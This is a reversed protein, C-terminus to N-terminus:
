FEEDPRHAIEEMQSAINVFDKGTYAMSSGEQERQKNDAIMGQMEAELASVLILRKVGTDTMDVM